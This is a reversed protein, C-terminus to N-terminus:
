RLEEVDVDNIVQSWRATTFHIGISAFSLSATALGEIPVSWLRASFCIVSSAM